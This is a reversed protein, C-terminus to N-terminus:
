KEWYFATDDSWVGSCRVSITHRGANLPVVLPVRTNAGLAVEWSTGGTSQRLEIIGRWPGGPQIDMTLGPGFRGGPPEDLVRGDIRVASRTLVWTESGSSVARNTTNRCEVLFAPGVDVGRSMFMPALTPISATVNPLGVAAGQTTDKARSGIPDCIQTRKKSIEVSTPLHMVVAAGDEYCNDSDLLTYRFTVDFDAPSHQRLQWTKINDVTEQRLLMPGSLVESKSVRVGDTWVHIRITGDVGGAYATDPYRPATASVVILPPAVAQASSSEVSGIYPGAALVGSSCAVLLAISRM